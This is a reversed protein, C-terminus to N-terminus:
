SMSAVEPTEVSVTERTYCIREPSVGAALLVSRVEVTPDALVVAIRHDDALDCLAILTGFHIADRIHVDGLNVVLRRPRIKRVARVLLQRFPVARDADLVGRPHIVLTGDAETRTEVQSRPAAPEASRDARAPINVGREMM